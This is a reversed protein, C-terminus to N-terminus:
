RVDVLFDTWRQQAEDLTWGYSSKLASRFDPATYMGSLKEAGGAQLLFAVFSGSVSYAVEADAKFFGSGLLSSLKFDQFEEGLALM